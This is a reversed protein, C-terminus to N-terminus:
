FATVIDMATPFTGAAFSGKQSSWPSAETFVATAGVGDSARYFLTHGSRLLVIHTWGWSFNTWNAIPASPATTGWQYLWGKGDNAYILVLAKDSDVCAALAGKAVTVSTIVSDLGGAKYERRYLKDTDKEYFYVHKGANCAFMSTFNGAAVTGSQMSASDWATAGWGGAVWKGGNTDYWLGRGEEVKTALEYTDGFHNNTKQSSTTDNNFVVDAIPHQSGTTHMHFVLEAGAGALKKVSTITQWNSSLSYSGAVRQTGDSKIWRLTNSADSKKYLMVGVEDATAANAGSGGTGGTAGGTGGTAGGTGGTAGGTGGTAGGTGGTAGGSGSAGGTGATGGSGAAGGTGGGSGGTGGTSGGAGGTAGAGGTGGTGGSGSGSSDDGGCGAALILSLVGFGIRKM